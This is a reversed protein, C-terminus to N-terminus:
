KIHRDIEEGLIYAGLSCPNKDPEGSHGWCGTGHRACTFISYSRGKYCKYNRHQFGIEKELSYAGYASEWQTELANITKHAWLCM